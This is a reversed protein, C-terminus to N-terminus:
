AYPWINELQAYSNTAGDLEPVAQAYIGVLLM